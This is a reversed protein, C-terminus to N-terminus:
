GNEEGVKRLHELMNNTDYFTAHYHVLSICQAGMNEAYWEDGLRKAYEKYLEYEKVPDFNYRVINEVFM